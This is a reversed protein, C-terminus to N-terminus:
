EAARRRSKPEPVVALAPPAAPDPESEVPAIAEPPEPEVHRHTQVIVGSDDNVSYVHRMDLGKEEVIRKLFQIRQNRAVTALRQWRTLEKETDAVLENLARIEVAEPGSIEGVQVPRELPTVANGEQGPQMQM